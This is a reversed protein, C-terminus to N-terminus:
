DAMESSHLIKHQDDLTNKLRSRFSEWDVSDGNRNAIQSASRLLDNAKKLENMLFIEKSTTATSIQSLELFLKNILELDM